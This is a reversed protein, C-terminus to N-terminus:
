AKDGQDKLHESMCALFGATVAEITGLRSRAVEGAYVAEGVDDLVECQWGAQYKVPKIHYQGWELQTAVANILDECATQHQRIVPRADAEDRLAARGSRRGKSRRGVSQGSGTRVENGGQEPVDQQAASAM